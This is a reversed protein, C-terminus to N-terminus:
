EEDSPNPELEDQSKMSFPAGAAYAALTAIVALVTYILIQVMM